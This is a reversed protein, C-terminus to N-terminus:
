RNPALKFNKFLRYLSTMVNRLYKCKIGWIVNTKHVFIENGRNVGKNRLRHAQSFHIDIINPPASLSPSPPGGGCWLVFNMLKRGCTVFVLLVFDEQERQRQRERM